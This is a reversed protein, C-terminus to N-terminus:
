ADLPGQRMAASNRDPLDPTAEDQQEDAAAIRSRVTSGVRSIGRVTARQHEEGTIAHLDYPSLSFSDPIQRATGNATGGLPSLPAHIMTAM